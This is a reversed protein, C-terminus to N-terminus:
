VIMDGDLYMSGFNENRDFFKYGHRQYFQIAGENDNDVSLIVLPVIDNDGNRNDDGTAMSRAYESVANLLLTGVGKRRMRDDVSMNALYVHCPLDDLKLSSKTNWDDMSSNGSSEDNSRKRMKNKSRHANRNRVQASVVGMIGNQRSFLKDLEDHQQSGFDQTDGQKYKDGNYIAAFFVPLDHPSVHNIYDGNDDYGKMLVNLAEEKTIISVNDINENNNDSENREGMAQKQKMSIYEDCSKQFGRYVRVDLARQKTSVREITIMANITSTSETTQSHLQCHHKKIWHVSHHPHSPAFASAFAPTHIGCAISSISSIVSISFTGLLVITGRRLHLHCHLKM